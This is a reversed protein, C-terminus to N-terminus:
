HDHKNFFIYIYISIFKSLSLFLVQSDQIINQTQVKYEQVLFATENTARLESVLTTPNSPKSSNM